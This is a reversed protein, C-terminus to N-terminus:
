IFMRVGSFLILFGFLLKLMKISFKNSIFFGIIGGFCAGFVILACTKVNIDVDYVSASMISLPLIFLVVGRHADKENGLYKYLFPMLLTGGGSGIAGNVFGAFAPYIIKLIKKM